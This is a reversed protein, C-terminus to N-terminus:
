NLGSVLFFCIEEEDSNSFECKRIFFDNTVNKKFQQYVNNYYMTTEKYTKESIESNM